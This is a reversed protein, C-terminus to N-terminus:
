GASLIEKCKFFFSAKDLDAEVASRLALKLSVFINGQNIRPNKAITIIALINVSGDANTLAVLCVLLNKITHASAAIPNFVDKESM